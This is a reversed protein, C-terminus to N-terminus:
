CREVRHVNVGEYALTRITQTVYKVGTCVAAKKGRIFFILNINM